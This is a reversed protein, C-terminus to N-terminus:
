TNQDIYETPTFYRPPERYPKIQESVEENVIYGSVHMLTDYLRDDIWEKNMSCLCPYHHLILGAKTGAEEVCLGVLGKAVHYSSGCASNRIVEVGKILRTKPDIAIKFKPRGFHRAFTAIREDDFSLASRGFDHSTETLSCFPKPFVATIGVSSLERKIQNALGQPLWSSNDIPAIVTCVESRIAIDTILQAAGSSEGLAILLEAHPITDPLFDSPEDIFSPLQKQITLAEIMWDLPAHERINRVIREGYPWQTLALIHM